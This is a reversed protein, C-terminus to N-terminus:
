VSSSRLSEGGLYQLRLLLFLILLVAHHKVCIQSASAQSKKHNPVSSMQVLFCTSDVHDTNRSSSGCRWWSVLQTRTENIEVM